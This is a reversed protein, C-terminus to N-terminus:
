LSFIAVSASRDLTSNELDVTSSVIVVLTTRDDMVLRRDVSDRADVGVVKVLFADDVNQRVRPEVTLQTWVGMVDTM